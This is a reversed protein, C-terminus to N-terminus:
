FIGKRFPKGSLTPRAKYRLYCFTDGHFVSGCFVVGTFHSDAVFIESPFLSIRYEGVNAQASFPQHFTAELASVNYVNCAFGSADASVYHPMISFRTRLGKQM